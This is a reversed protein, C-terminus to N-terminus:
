KTKAPKNNSDIKSDIKFDMKSDIKSDVKSDLKSDAKSDLPMENYLYMTKTRLTYFLIGYIVCFTIISLFLISDEKYFLTNILIFPAYILAIILSSYHKFRLYLFYHLHYNNPEYLHLLLERISFNQVKTARIFSCTFIECIPYIFLSFAYLKPFDFYLIGITLLAALTFSLLYAGSDGLFMLGKPFNFAAFVVNIGLLIAAVFTIFTSDQLHATYLLSINILIATFIANGNIGDIMNFANIIVYIMIFSAFFYTINYYISDIYLFLFSFNFYLIGLWQILNILTISTSKNTDKLMGSQIIIFCSIYLHLGALTAIITTQIKSDKNNSEINKDHQANLSVDVKQKTSEKSDKNSSEMVKSEINNYNISDIKRNSEINELNKSDGVDIELGAMVIIILAIFICVGGCRTTNITHIKFHNGRAKDQLIRMSVSLIYTLTLVIVGCVLGLLVFSFMAFVSM